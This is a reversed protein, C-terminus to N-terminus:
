NKLQSPDWTIQHSRAIPLRGQTAKRRYYIKEM